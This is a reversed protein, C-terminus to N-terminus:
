RPQLVRDIQYRQDDTPTISKRTSLFQMGLVRPAIQEEEKVETPGRYCAENGNLFQLDKDSSLSASIILRHVNWRAEYSAIDNVQVTKLAVPIVKVDAEEPASSRPTPPIPMPPLLKQTGAKRERALKREKLINRYFIRLIPRFMSKHLVYGAGGPKALGESWLQAETHATIDVPKGFTSEGPSGLLSVKKCEFTLCPKSTRTSNGMPIETHVMKFNSISVIAGKYEFM